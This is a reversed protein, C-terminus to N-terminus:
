YATTPQKPAPGLGYVKAGSIWATDYVKADSLTFTCPRKFSWDSYNFGGGTKSWCYRMEVDEKPRNLEFLVTQELEEICGGTYIESETYVVPHQKITSAKVAGQVKYITTHKKPPKSSTLMDILDKGRSPIKNFIRSYKETPDLNSRWVVTYEREPHARNMHQHVCDMASYLCAGGLVPSSELDIQIEDDGYWIAWVSFMEVPKEPEKTPATAELAVSELDKLYTDSNGILVKDLTYIDAGKYLFSEGNIEVLKFDPFYQVEQNFITITTEGRRGARFGDVLSKAEPSLSAFSDAFITRYGALRSRISM